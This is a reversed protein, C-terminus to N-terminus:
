VLSNAQLFVASDFSSDMVNAIALKIHYTMGCQVTASAAIVTTFGDYQITSNIAPTTGTGNNVYYACYECPGANAGGNNLNNITIPVTTTPILAINIAGNSYIGAIGPGSLFFGFVDNFNTNTWEPYEESAFVFNFSLNQGTPVFDFELVAKNMVANTTLLALDADGQVPNATVLTTNGAGNPGIAVSTNGTALLSGTDIGINTTAGNTFHGVQDRLVSANAASGNFKINSVTIGSGLLVNQVLQAPTQTNTITLQSYSTFSLFTFLTIFYLNKKM